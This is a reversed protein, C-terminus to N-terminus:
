KLGFALSLTCSFVSYYTVEGARPKNSLITSLLKAPVLKIGWPTRVGPWDEGGFIQIITFVRVLLVRAKDDQRVAQGSVKPVPDSEEM